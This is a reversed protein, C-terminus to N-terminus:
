LIAGGYLRSYYQLQQEELADSLYRRYAVAVSLLANGGFEAVFESM